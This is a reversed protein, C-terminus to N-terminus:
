AKKKLARTSVMGLGALMLLLTSPEPIDSHANQASITLNSSLLRLSGSRSHNHIVTRYATRTHTDTRYHTDYRYRTDTHFWHRVRYSHRVRYPHRDTYTQQYPVSHRDTFMDVESARLTVTLLGDSLFSSAGSVGLIDFSSIGNGPNLNGLFLGGNIRVPDSYGDVGQATISLSASNIVSDATLGAASYDFTWSVTQGNRVIPNSWSDFTQDIDVTIPVASATTALLGLGLGLLINRTKM